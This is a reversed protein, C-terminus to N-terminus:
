SLNLDVAPRAQAYWVDKVRAFVERVECKLQDGFPHLDASVGYAELGLKEAIYLARYLHYEQTVIVIRRASFVEKARVISEYTSYGRPDTLLSDDTVGAAIAANQMATVEDYSGDDQRDGSMLLAEGIGSQYLSVGVAVRDSLRDSLTGDAYAKCGLVLVLDFTGEADELTQATVIREATKHCVAANLVLTSALVALLVGLLLCCAPIRKKWGGQRM